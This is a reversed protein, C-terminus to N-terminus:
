FKIFFFIPIPWNPHVMSDWTRLWNQDDSLALILDWIKYKHSALVFFSTQPAFVILSTVIKSNKSHSCKVKNKDKVKLIWICTQVPHLNVFHYLFKSWRTISHQQDKNKKRIKKKLVKHSPTLYPLVTIINNGTIKWYIIRTPRSKGSSQYM